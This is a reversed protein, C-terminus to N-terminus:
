SEARERRGCASISEGERAAPDAGRLYGALHRLFRNHRLIRPQEKLPPEDLAVDLDGGNGRELNRTLTDEVKPKQVSNTNNQHDLVM